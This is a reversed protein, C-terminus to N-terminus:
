RDIKPKDFITIKLNDPFLILDAGGGVIFSQHKKASHKPENTYKRYKSTLVKKILALGCLNIEINQFSKFKLQKIAWIDSLTQMCIKKDLELDTSFQPWDCIYSIAFVFCLFILNLKFFVLFILLHYFFLNLSM